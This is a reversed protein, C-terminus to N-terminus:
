KKLASEFPISAKSHADSVLTGSQRIVCLGSIHWSPVLATASLLELQPVKLLAGTIFSLDLEEGDFAPQGSVNPHYSDKCSASKPSSFISWENSHISVSLKLSLPASIRIQTLTMSYAAAM